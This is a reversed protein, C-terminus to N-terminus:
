KFFLVFYLSPPCAYSGDVFLWLNQGLLFPKVQSEWVLFNTESLKVSILHSINPISIPSITSSSTSGSAM